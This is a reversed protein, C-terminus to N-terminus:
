NGYYGGRYYKSGYYYYHYMDPSSLDIGNVVFGIIPANIQRLMANMRLTAAKTTQGSRVVLLVADVNISLLMPDTVSLVPPSDIFIFDYEKRWNVIANAMANSGVMEAPHPPTPGAAIVSFTPMDALPHLVDATGGALLTTLGKAPRPINLSRHIGPRRLDADVLLVKAGRQAMVIATNMTTTTKGEQPLASTVLVVQPPKSPSSLLLTTRLSRYCEALESKPTRHSILALSEHGAAAVAPLAATQRKKAGYGYSFKPLHGHGLATPIAGVAPLGTMAEVQEPTRVTNDMLEQGFALVVGTMLSGVLGLLLNRPIDPRSPIEPVKARDIVRVNGSKLGATIGAEKLKELLGDYLQRNSDADRKLMSYEIASENLNHAEDKQREFAQRLMQERAVAVKYDSALQGVISTTESKQAAQNESLRRNIEAVKPYTPGFQLSMAAAQAKLDAQESRLKQLLPSEPVSSPGAIAGRYLAEKRIRDTEADTLDKNLDSLKSTITNQKDDVGVIGHDKQYQALKEESAEVKLQLDALQKSLWDAAQMTSEFKTKYNQEIYANILQNPVDASLRPNPSDFQVEIVRTNPVNAVHLNKLINDAAAAERRQTADTELPSTAAPVSLSAGARPSDALHLARVVERALSDSTLIKVQTEINVPDSADDYSYDQSAREPTFQTSTERNLAIRAKGTYIKTLRVSVIAVITVGILVTAVITWKRKVLVRWYDAINSQAADASAYAAAAQYMTLPKPGPMETVALKQTPAIEHGPTM